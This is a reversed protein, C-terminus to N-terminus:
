VNFTPNSCRGYPHTNHQRTHVPKRVDFSDRFSHYLDAQLLIYAAPVLEGNRVGFITTLRLPEECVVDTIDVALQSCTALLELGRKTACVFQVDPLSQSHLLFWGQLGRSFYQVPIEEITYIYYLFLSLSLYIYVSIFLSTSSKPIDIMAFPQPYRTHKLRLTDDRPITRKARVRRRHSPAGGVVLFSTVEESLVNDIFLQM